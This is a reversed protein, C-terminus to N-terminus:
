VCVFMLERSYCWGSLRIGTNVFIIKAPEGPVGDATFLYVWTIHSLLYLVLLMIILLAIIFQRIGGGGGWKKEETYNNICRPNM